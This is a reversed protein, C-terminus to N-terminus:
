SHRAMSGRNLKLRPIIAAVSDVEAAPTFFVPQEKQLGKGRNCTPRYNLLLDQQESLRDLRSAQNLHVHIHTAGCARICPTLARENLWDCLSGAQGVHLPLWGKEHRRAFVYNGPKDVFLTGIPFVRYAYPTGSAGLWTVVESQVM